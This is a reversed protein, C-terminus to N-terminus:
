NNEDGKGGKERKKWEEMLRFITKKYRQHREEVRMFNVRYERGERDIVRCDEALVSLPQDINEWEFVVLREEPVYVMKPAQGTIEAVIAARTIYTTQYAM